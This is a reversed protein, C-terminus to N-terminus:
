YLYRELESMEREKICVGRELVSDTELVSM